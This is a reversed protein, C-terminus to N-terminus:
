GKNLNTQYVLTSRKTGGKIYKLYNQWYKVINDNEVYTRGELLERTNGSNM